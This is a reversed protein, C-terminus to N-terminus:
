RRGGDAVMEILEHHYRKSIASWRFTERCFNRAQIALTNLHASDELLNVIGDRYVRPNEPEVLHGNEGHVIVDCLGEIGSAIVFLGALNAELVSIGFGEMDKQVRINPQVFLHAKALLIWKQEENVRGTMFVRQGLKRKSISEKISSMEPGDGVVIYVINEDLSPMVERVFWDIGKRRVLRGVTILIKKGFLNDGVLEQLNVNKFPRNEYPHTVGNPIVKIKTDAIGRLVAQDATAQSVAFIRDVSVLFRKLWIRQYFPNSYTVDLGHLICAVPKEPYIQKLIRGTIALVGDGLLIVDYRRALWISRLVCWPLFLPLLRKGYPNVIAGVKVLSALGKRIAYNQQELGGLTPPYSRSIFLVKM